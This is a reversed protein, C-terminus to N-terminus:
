RLANAGCPLRNRYSFLNHTFAYNSSFHLGNPKYETNSRALERSNTLNDFSLVM